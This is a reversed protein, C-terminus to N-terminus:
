TGLQVFGLRDLEEVVKKAAEENAADKGKGECEGSEIHVFYLGDSDLVEAWKCVSFFGHRDEVPRPEDQSTSLTLSVNNLKQKYEHLIQKNNKKSDFKVVPIDTDYRLISTYFYTYPRVPHIRRKALTSLLKTCAIDEAEFKDVHDGKETLVDKDAVITVKAHQKGEIPKVEVGNLKVDEVRFHSRVVQAARPLLQAACLLESCVRRTFSFLQQLVDILMRPIQERAQRYEVVHGPLKIWYATKPVDFSFVGERENREPVVSLSRTSQDIEFIMDKAEFSILGRHTCCNRYYHLLSFSEEDGCEVVPRKHVIAGKADIKMKPQVALLIKGIDKWMHSREGIKSGWLFLLKDEVFKRSQDQSETKSVKVGKAKFPFGCQTSKSSFDPQGNNSFHCYLLYYTYDLVSYLNSMMLRFKLQETDVDQSHKAAKDSLIKENDKFYDIVGDAQELLLHISQIQQTEWESLQAM